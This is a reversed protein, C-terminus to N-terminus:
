VTAFKVNYHKMSLGLQEGAQDNCFKLATEKVKFWNLYDQMYKTAVGWFTGNLWKM